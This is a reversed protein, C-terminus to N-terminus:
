KRASTNVPTPNADPVNQKKKRSHRHKCRYRTMEHHINKKTKEERQQKEDRKWYICFNYTRSLTCQFHLLDTHVRQRLQWKTWLWVLFLPVSLPVFLLCFLIHFIYYFSIFHVLLLSSSSLLRRRFVYVANVMVTCYDHCSLVAACVFM